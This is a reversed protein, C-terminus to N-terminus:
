NKVSSDRRAKVAGIDELLDETRLHKMGRRVYAIFAEIEARVEDRPPEIKRIEMEAELDDARKGIEPNTPSGARKGWASKWQSRLDADSLSKFQRGEDLYRRTREMRGEAVFSWFDEPLTDTVKGGDTGLAV